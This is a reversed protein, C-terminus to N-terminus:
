RLSYLQKLPNNQLYSGAKCADSTIICKRMGEEQLVFTYWTRVTMTNNSRYRLTCVADQHASRICLSLKSSTPKSLLIINFHIKFFQSPSAYLPNIQSLISVRPPGKHICFHVKPNWVTSPIVPSASTRNDEWSPSQEMQNPPPVRYRIFFLM